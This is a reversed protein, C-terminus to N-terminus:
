YRLLMAYVRCVPFARQVATARKGQVTPPITVAVLALWLGIALRMKRPKM